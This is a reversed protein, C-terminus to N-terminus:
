CQFRCIVEPERHCDLGRGVESACVRRSPGLYRRVRLLCWWVGCSRMEPPKDPIEPYSGTLVQSKCHSQFSYFM